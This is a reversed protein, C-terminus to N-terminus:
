GTIEYIVTDPNRHVVKLFDARELGVLGPDPDLTPWSSGDGIFVHRVNLRKVAARVEPDTRYDIFHQALYAADPPPVNPDFHGAVSKVGTIAYLWVSGDARDNLVREGPQYIEAMTFMAELELPTVTRQLIREAKDEPRNHYAHAVTLTNTTAYFGNTAVGLGGVVLVGATLAALTTGRPHDRVSESRAAALRALWRRIEALGHAAILVLPITALAIVRFRDNWWPRSLSAVWDANGYSAVLVWLGGFLVASGLVWRLNGLRHLRVLGILLLAALVIQPYVRAHWFLVLARLSEAVTLNSAQLGAQVEYSYSGTAHDIAGLLHPAGVLAGFVAIPLLQALDALVQGERRRWRVILMPVAMLIAAFLASSHVALLGVAALVMVTGSGFGPRGLFRHLAIAGLPTLAISLAFPVLGSAVSQHVASTAAASIVAAGGALMASGGCERVLAAMSLAFVGAIPMTIANLVVPISAGTLMQVLAGALHFANPYFLSGDPGYRNVSSVGYLGGDNTETIYRIGNAHFVPDWRQFVADLVGESAGIVVVISVVFAAAVCATVAIHANRSWANRPTDPSAAAARGWRSRQLALRIAFIAGALVLTSGIATALTFPLGLADLYPGAVGLLAYSLLPTLGALAWGRLGAAVGVLLGPLVLVLLYGAVSAISSWAPDLPAM